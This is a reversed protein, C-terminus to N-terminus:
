FSKRFNSLIYSLIFKHIAMYTGKVSVQHTVHDLQQGEISYVQCTYKGPTKVYHVKLHYSTTNPNQSTFFSHSDKDGEQIISNKHMWGVWYHDPDGSVECTLTIPLGVRDVTSNTPQSIVIPKSTVTYLLFAIIIYM